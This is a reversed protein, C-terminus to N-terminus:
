SLTCGNQYMVAWAQGTWELVACDGVVTASAVVGIAGLHTYDENIMGKFVGDISGVPTSAATSCTVICREGVASGNPLAKTSTSSVTGTVSCCYRKWLNLGTLVTTGIVVADAAGGARDVRICRWKLGSTAILDISQGVDTFTFTTSCVFGTTDDPSSITVTGLPTSAASVCVIRKRQTAVTPAALTYAKTGSVTLETVYKTLDLAGAASVADVGEGLQARLGDLADQNFGALRTLQTESLGAM